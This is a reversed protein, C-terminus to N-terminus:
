WCFGKLHIIGKVTIEENYMSRVTVDARKCSAVSLNIKGIASVM